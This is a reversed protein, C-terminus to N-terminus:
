TKKKMMVQANSKRVGIYYLGTEPKSKRPHDIHLGNKRYEILARRFKPKRFLLNLSAYGIAEIFDASPAGSGNVEMILNYELPAEHKLFYGVRTEEFLRKKRKRVLKRRPKKRKKKKLLKKSNDSSLGKENQLQM